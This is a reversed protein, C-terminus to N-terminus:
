IKMESLDKTTYEVSNDKGEYNDTNNFYRLYMGVNNKSAHVITKNVYPIFCQDFISTTRKHDKCGKSEDKYKKECGRYLNAAEGNFPSANNPVDLLLIISSMVANIDYQPSWKANETLIDVCISGNVSINPHYISTVFKVLPPNFPFVNGSYQSKFEIIYTQGKYYGGTPQLLIYYHGMIDENVHTIKFDPNGKAAEFKKMILKPWRKMQMPNFSM